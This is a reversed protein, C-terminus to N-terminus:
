MCVLSGQGILWRRPGVMKAVSGISVLNSLLLKIGYITM